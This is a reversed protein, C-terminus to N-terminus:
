KPPLGSLVALQYCMLEQYNSYSKMRENDEATLVRLKLADNFVNWEGCSECIAFDGPSPQGDGTCEKMDELCQPCSTVIATVIKESM